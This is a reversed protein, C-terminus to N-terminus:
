ALLGGRPKERPRPEGRDPVITPRGPMTPSVAARIPRSPGLALAAVVALAVGLLFTRIPSPM